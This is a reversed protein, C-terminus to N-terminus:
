QKFKNWENKGPITSANLWPKNIGTYHIIFNKQKIYKNILARDPCKIEGALLNYRDELPEYEGDCYLNLIMQDNYKPCSKWTHIIKETFQNQRMIDLDLLLVGANFNKSKTYKYKYRKKNWRQCWNISETRGAFGTLQNVPHTRIWELPTQVIVDLDLYLVRGCIQNLTKEILLRNMTARSVHKLGRYSRVVDSTNVNYININKYIQDRITQETQRGSYLLHVNYDSNHTDISRLVIPLLWLQNDDSCFVINIKDSSIMENPRIYTRRHTSQKEM